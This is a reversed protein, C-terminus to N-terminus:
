VSRLVNIDVFQRCGGTLKVWPVSLLRERTFVTKMCSDQKEQNDCWCNDQVAFMSDEAKWMIMNKAKGSQILRQLAYHQTFYISDEEHHKGQLDIGEAVIMKKYNLEGMNLANRYEEFWARIVTSGRPAMMFWNEFVPSDYRTTDRGIYFGAMQRREKYCIDRMENLSTNYLTSIDSWVGGYTKLLWLRMFDAKHQVSLSFFSKPLEHEPCMELFEKTTIKRFEWDPVKRLNREYILRIMEPMEPTDWHCWIIKPISYSYERVVYLLLLTILVIVIIEWKM